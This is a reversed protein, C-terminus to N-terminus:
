HKESPQPAQKMQETQCKDWTQRYNGLTRLIHESLVRGRVGTLLLFKCIIWIGSNKKIRTCLLLYSWSDILIYNLTALHHVSIMYVTGKESKIFFFVNIDLPDKLKWRKFCTERVGHGLHRKSGCCLSLARGGDHRREWISRPIRTRPCMCVATPERTYKWVCACVHTFVTMTISGLASGSVPMWICRIPQLLPGPSLPVFLVPCPNTEAPIEDRDGLPMFQAM